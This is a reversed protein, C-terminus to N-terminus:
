SALTSEDVVEAWVANYAAVMQGISFNYEIRARAKDCQSAWHNGGMEMLALEIADALADPDNSPVVWGTDGVIEAADGVDTVVCPAGCAMAEAVVNPFGEAASSLVHVDLSNMILPIDTRQGLLVVSQYLGRAYIWENLESNSQDMGTGVLLCYFAINRQNLIALAAILNAHDKHPHFRGVMGIVPVAIDQLFRAQFERKAEPALKFKALDYGNPIFVMKRKDYGLSGHVDIASQACVVIKAPVWRSLKALCKVVLITKSKTKNPDLTGHRVSWVIKKIGALRAAVGGVLDGHYMWTQVVDPREARLLRVLRCFSIMSPQSPSINFAAVKVGLAKLIPGYKGLTSLSVVHHKNSNDHKCLRYLVAEAGGDNLGTIVHIVKM